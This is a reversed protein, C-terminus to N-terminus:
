PMLPLTFSFKSGRGKRSEIQMRGGNKEVLDKCLHLGLGTGTEGGTGVTSTKEDLRFLRAQQDGSIGVGTDSVEVEAWKGKRRARIDVSGNAPTFKVANNVLNRVVTDVMGADAFAHLPKRRKSSLLVGKERASPAFLQLNRDIIPKLDVSAPDFTIRGMQLLSWELLNELLAFVQQASGHVADAYEVIKNQDLDLSRSALLSSFGLLATFPGKLDHSIISIFKDKQDNLQRLEDGAASLNEALAALVQSQAELREESDRLDVVQRTLRNESERLAQEIRKLESIDVNVTGLGVMDGSSTLLPFRTSIVDRTNGDPYWLATERSLEAQAAMAQRDLADFEAAQDAAYIDHVTKGVVDRRDLGVWEEFRKNVFLFRGQLDKLTIFEPLNDALARMIEQSKQLETEARKLESIDYIQGLIFQPVGEADRLHVSYVRAWVVPGTKPVYRKEIVFNHRAGIETEQDLAETSAVDGAHSVDRWNMQLLEDESYGLIDCFTRNVKLYKGAIDHLAMGAASTEFASRFQEESQRLEEEAQKARREAEIQDTVERGTGRYGHFRGDEGYVPRGSISLWRSHDGDIAYEYCFDRFPQQAELCALHDRWSEDEPNSAVEFRTKGYSEKAGGRTVRFLRESLHTFRHEADTEWVWDSTSDAFDRFREESEQLAEVARNRETIDRSVGILKEPEGLEDRILIAAAHVHALSGDPRIIRYELNFEHDDSFVRSLTEWVYGADEPHLNNRFDAQVDGSYTGPEFGWIEQNRADWYHTGDKVNWSFTGIGGSMLSLSLREESERLIRDAKKAATIDTYTVVLGGDKTRNSLVEYTNEGRVTIEAPATSASWLLEVRDRCLIKPEGEGFDGREALFLAMELNAMGVKLFGKPFQLIQDYQHNWVLLHRSRDFMVVGQPIHELVNTLLKSKDTM